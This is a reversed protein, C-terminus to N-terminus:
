SLPRENWHAVLSLVQAPKELTKTLTTRYHVEELSRAEDVDESKLHGDSKANQATDRLMAEDAMLDALGSGEDFQVKDRWLIESPLMDEFAKRLIWKEVQKDGIRRLKEEAPISMAVEIMATDLFPVRGEIGHAMTMRDVRQLNINHMSLISRLLEEHLALPDDYERYYTYGAFLEDAGEGTLVVKVRESALRSVYWCPIASRVLDRDFSELHFLIEPLDRRVEDRTIVHEHHITDLHQAVRRAALLDASGELGVAFTHLEDLKQRALAAIISSDLGGSLFAGLPVDSRLRKTVAADLTQRVDDIMEDLARDQPLASPPQYYTRFGSRSDYVQGAPFEEIDDTVAALAKIESAFCLGQDIRGMYLPKIGIPDRAAILGDEHVLVFAFMGDLRAVADTGWASLSRLIAESDSATSFSDKGLEHRLAADNYIMGNAVLAESSGTDLIPQAGGIPDIISLRRHGLTADQREDVHVGQGDPGRHELKSIIDHVMTRDSRGWLAAIGCM